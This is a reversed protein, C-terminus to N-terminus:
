VVSKRDRATYSNGSSPSGSVPAGASALVIVNGGNGSTWNISVSNSGVSTVSFTTAQITPPTCTVTPNVIGYLTFDDLRFTGSGSAGGLQLVVNVTGSLNNVPSSVALTGTNAGTTSVTGTGITTAGNVSLTWGQAGATSRQRWFSFDTISCTFGPAITFNLSYTPMGSSNGISLAQGTSGAFTTFGAAVSTSWQSSNLNGDIVNPTVTYPNVATFTSTGFAHQYIVQGFSFQSILISTVFLFTYIFKNKM